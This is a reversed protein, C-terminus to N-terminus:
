LHGDSLVYYQIGFFLLDGVSEPLKVCVDDISKAPHILGISGM